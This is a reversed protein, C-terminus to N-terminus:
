VKVIALMTQLCLFLGCVPKRTVGVCVCSSCVTKHCLGGGLLPLAEYKQCHSIWSVKEWVAARQIDCLHSM